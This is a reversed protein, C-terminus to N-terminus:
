VFESEQTRTREPFIVINDVVKTNVLKEYFITKLYYNYYIWIQELILIKQTTQIEPGIDGAEKIWILSGM